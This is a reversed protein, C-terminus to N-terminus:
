QKASIFEEPPLAVTLLLTAGEDCEISHPAGAPASLIDGPKLERVGDPAVFRIRGSLPQISIPGDAHHDPIGGGPALVIMTVRLLGEKFLTRGNRGHRALIAEDTAHERERELSFTLIEGGLPRSITPM